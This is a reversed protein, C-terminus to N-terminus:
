GAVATTARGTGRLMSVGRSGAVIVLDSSLSQLLDVDIGLLDLATVLEYGGELGPTTPFRAPVLRAVGPHKRVLMNLM